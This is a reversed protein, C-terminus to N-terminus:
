PGKMERMFLKQLQESSIKGGGLRFLLNAFAFSHRLYIKDTLHSPRNHRVAEVFM